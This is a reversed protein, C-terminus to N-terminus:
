QHTAVQTQYFGNFDLRSAMGSTMHEVDHTSLQHLHGLLSTLNKTFDKEKSSVMEEFAKGKVTAQLAELVSDSRQKGSKGGKKGAVATTTADLSSVVQQMQQAFGTCLILLHHIREIAGKNSLMCDKLCRDLYDTHAVLVDDVTTTMSRLHHELTCWNPELVEFAMFYQLNQVYHLM